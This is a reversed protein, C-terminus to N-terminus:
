LGPKRWGELSFPSFTGNNRVGVKVRQGRFETLEGVLKIREASAFYKGCHLLEQVFPVLENINPPKMKNRVAHAYIDRVTETILGDSAPELSPSVPAGSTPEASEIREAIIRAMTQLLDNPAANLLQHDWAKVAAIKRSLLGFRVDFELSDLGAADLGSLDCEYRKIAALLEGFLRLQTDEIRQQFKPPLKDFPKDLPVDYMWYDPLGAPLSTNDDDGAASM